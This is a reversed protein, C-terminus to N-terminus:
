KVEVTMKMNQNMPITMESGDAPNKMSMSMSQEMDMGRMWSLKNDWYLRSKTKGDKVQMGMAKMMKAQESADDGAAASFDMKIEGEMDVVACDHGGYEQYGALTYTGTFSVSGIGAMDLKVDLPWTDGPKVPTKPFGQAMWTNMMQELQKKDSFQKSMQAAMPNTGMAKAMEEVGKVDIISNSEDVIMTFKQGVMAGMADLPSGGANPKDSDYEMTMGMSTMNMAVRKYESEVQKNKSDPVASVVMEMDMNMKMKQDMTQGGMSIKSNQDMEMKQLYTKGTKWEFKLVEAGRSTDLAQGRAVLLGGLLIGMSLVFHKSKM